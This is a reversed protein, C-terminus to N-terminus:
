RCCSPQPPSASSACSTRTRRRRRGAPRAPRARGRDRTPLLALWWRKPRGTRLVYTLLPRSSADDSWSGSCATSRTTWRGCRSCGSASTARPSRAPRARARRGPPDHHGPRGADRRHRRDGRPGAPRRRARAAPRRQGPGPAAPRGDRRPDGPARRGGRAPRQDLVLIRDSMREVEHLVHSSVIVTRGEDGLRRFLAILRARQVPDAGNLPEDLVLVTPDSVLAAAIKARQRM